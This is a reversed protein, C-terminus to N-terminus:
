VTALHRLLQSSEAPSLAAARMRTFARVYSAVDDPGDLFVGGSLSALHV